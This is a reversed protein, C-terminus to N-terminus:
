GVSTATVLEGAVQPLSVGRSAADARLAAMAQDEDHGERVMLIGVATDIACRDAVAASLDTGSAIRLLYAVGGAIQEAFQQALQQEAPSFRPPRDRYATLSGVTVTRTSLPMSMSSTFRQKRAYRAYEPWQSHSGAIFYAAVSDDIAAPGPGSLNRLQWDSMAQARADSAAATRGGASSGLMLACSADLQVAALQVLDGLHEVIPAFDLLLDGAGRPDGTGGHQAGRGAHM